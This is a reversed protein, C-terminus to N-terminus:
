RLVEDRLVLPLVLSAAYSLGLVVAWPLLVDAAGTLHFVDRMKYRVPVFFPHICYVALSHRAMFRVVANGPPQARVVSVLVAVAFFVLSPRTYAPLAFKNVRFFCPDVYATWDLVASAAGLGLAILGVRDLGRDDGARALGVGAFALPLFNLPNAHLGLVLYGTARHLLPLVGVVATTAAFLIWVTRDTLRQAYHTAVTVLALSVFFYYVTNGGTLLYLGLGGPDRPIHKPFGYGTFFFIQFALSWFFLLRLIRGLRRRLGRGDAPKLGYLYTSVVVFVPVALCLIYFNVFDSWTFTHEAYRDPDFIASPFIYDLHVAVVCVSFIARLYDIGVIRRDSAAMM